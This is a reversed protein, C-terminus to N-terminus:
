RAAGAGPQERRGLWVINPPGDDRSENEIVMEEVAFGNRALGEAFGSDPYASWIALVGDARLARHASRLGWNSYIRDNSLQVLGHPGNDVDLLIADFAADAREIVEHVDGLEVTVRPDDLSRGMLHALPGDAWDVIKPVLEIVLFTAQPPFARRAAALTFGMGLGGILVRPAPAQLREAALTALAAESGAEWSGMLQEGDDLIIEFDNGHRLLTLYGGDPLPATDLITGAM